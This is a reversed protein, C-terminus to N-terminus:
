CHPNPSEKSHPTSLNYSGSLNFVGCSFSYFWSVQPSLVECLSFKWGPLRCPDAYTITIYSPRRTSGRVTPASFIESEKAPKQSGIGWLSNSHPLPVWTSIDQKTLIWPLHPPVVPLLSYFSVTTLIHFLCINFLFQFWLLSGLNVGFMM